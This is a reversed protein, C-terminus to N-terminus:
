MPETAPTEGLQDTHVVIPVKRKLDNVFNQWATARQQQLMQETFTPGQRKWEDATPPARSVVKFIFANGDNEMVQDIVGPVNPIAAAAETVEPFEGIDPVSRTARVFDGTMRVQFHQAAAVTDFDSASKIQKLAAVAANHAKTEATVRILRARVKGKIESFPPIRAPKRDVLKVLYPVPGNAIARVDGPQLAFVTQVMKPNDEAGKITEDAAFYPTEIAVLGHKKALDELDRGQLAAALDQNVDQRASDAGAKHKLEQIINARAEDISDVHPAKIDEVQIVHYGFHSEVIARQGPKLQFAADEFPKVMEGRGFYGVDGGKDRTGPDDSDQAALKGFDAGAKLKQLIDEAKAKAVAKEQASAEPGTAILIHRARVQETHTFLTKLNDTYFKQIDAEPPPTTETLASPDYRILVIRVREPEGFSEKNEQYTKAVEQDTPQIGETFNSYAFEIYALSLTEAYRNFEQRAEDTSVDVANAVMERLTDTLVEQRTESEFQATEVGNNRLINDYQQVSFHGEVQFAAQSEIAKALDEDSIRLGLRRAEDAVLQQEILQEVAMQRLNVNQMMRQANEGLRNVMIRRLNSVEEDLENPYINYCGPLTMVGLLAHCGVSAIPKAQLFYNGVGFFIIFVLVLLGLLARTGWSYAHRRFVQLM